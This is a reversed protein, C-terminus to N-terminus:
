TNNRDYVKLKWTIKYKEPKYRKYLRTMEKPEITGLANLYVLAFEILAQGRATILNGDRVVAKKLNTGSEKEGVGSFDFSSTYKKEALVGYEELLITGACISGVIKRKQLCERILAKLRSNKILAEPEGGPIIIGDYEDAKIESIEIDAGVTLGEKTVVTGYEEAAYHIHIGEEKLLYALLAASHFAMKEYIIMCIKM